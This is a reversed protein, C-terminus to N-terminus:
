GIWLHQEHYSIDRMHHKTVRRAERTSMRDQGFESTNAAARCRRTRRCTLCGVSDSCHGIQLNESM